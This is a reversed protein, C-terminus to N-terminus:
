TDEQEEEDVDSARKGYQFALRNLIAIFDLDDCDQHSLLQYYQKIARFMCYFDETMEGNLIEIQPFSFLNRDDEERYADTLAVVLTVIKEEQTM